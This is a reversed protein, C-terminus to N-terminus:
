ETRITNLRTARKLFPLTLASMILTMATAGACMLTVGSWDFTLTEGTLDLVIAALGLGTVLAVAV